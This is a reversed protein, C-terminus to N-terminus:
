FTPCNKCLLQPTILCNSAATIKCQLSPSFTSELKPYLAICSSSLDFSAVRVCGVRRPCRPVTEWFILGYSPQLSLEDSTMTDVLDVVMKQQINLDSQRISTNEEKLPSTWAQREVASAHTGACDM